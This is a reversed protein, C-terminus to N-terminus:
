LTKLVFITQWTLEVHLCICIKCLNVIELNIRPTAFLLLVAALFHYCSNRLFWKNAFISEIKKVIGGNAYFFVYFLHFLVMSWWLIDNNCIKRKVMLFEKFSYSCIILLFHLLLRNFMMFCHIRKIKQSAFFYM